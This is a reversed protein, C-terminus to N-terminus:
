EPSPPRAHAPPSPPAGGPEHGHREIGSVARCFDAWSAFVGADGATARLGARRTAEAHAEHGLSYLTNWAPRDPGAESGLAARRYSADAKDARTFWVGSEELGVYLTLARHVCALQDDSLGAFPRSDPHTM